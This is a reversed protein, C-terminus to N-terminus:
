HQHVTLSLVVPLKVEEAIAEVMVTETAAKVLVRLGVRHEGVAEGRSRGGDSGSWKMSVYPVADSMASTQKRKESLPEM